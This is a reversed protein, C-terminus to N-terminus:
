NWKDGDNPGYQNYVVQSINLLRCQGVSEEMSFSVLCMVLASSQLVESLDLETM